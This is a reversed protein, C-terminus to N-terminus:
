PGRLTPFLIFIESLFSNCARQCSVTFGATHLMHALQHQLRCCNIWEANVGPSATLLNGDEGDVTNNPFQTLIIFCRRCSTSLNKMSSLIFFQWIVSLCWHLPSQWRSTNPEIPFQLQSLRPQLVGAWPGPIQQYLCLLAFLSKLRTQTRPPVLVEQSTFCHMISTFFHNYVVSTDCFNGWPWRLNATWASLFLVPGPLCCGRFLSPAHLEESWLCPDAQSFPVSYWVRSCVHLTQRPLNGQGGSSTSKCSGATTM